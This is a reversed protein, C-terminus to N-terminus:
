IAAAMAAKAGTSQVAGTAAKIQPGFLRYIGGGVLAAALVVFTGELLLNRTGTLVYDVGTVKSLFSVQQAGASTAGTGGIAGSQDVMSGGAPTAAPALGATTPDVPVGDRRLEYHLHPGTVNGTAGSKGINQGATVKQGVKVSAGSLHGFITEYGGANKIKVWTGYGSGSAGAAEVTGAATAYVPTGTAARYDIGTHEGGTKSWLAGHKGFPTVVTLKGHLPALWGATNDKVNTGVKAAAARARPLFQQYSGSTFTSWPRWNKGGSSIKYAARLNTIPDYLQDNSSLGFQRRREPGMAGLMNVQTLGYSNDPPIPNHSRPDFGSEAGTIATIITAQSPSFGVSRADAYVQEPTLLPM